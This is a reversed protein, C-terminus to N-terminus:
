DEDNERSVDIRFKSKIQRTVTVYNTVTKVVGCEKAARVKYHFRSNTPATSNLYILAVKKCYKQKKNMARELYNSLIAM